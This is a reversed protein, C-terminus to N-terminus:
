DIIRFTSYAWHPAKWPLNMRLHGIVSPWYSITLGCLAADENKPMPWRYETM